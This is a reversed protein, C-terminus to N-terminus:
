CIYIYMRIHPAVTLIISRYTYDCGKRFMMIKETVWLPDLYKLSSYRAWVM